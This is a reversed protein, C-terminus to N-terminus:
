YETQDRIREYRNISDALEQRERKMQALSSNIRELEERMM